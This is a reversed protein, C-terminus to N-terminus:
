LSTKFPSKYPLHPSVSTLTHALTYVPFKKAVLDVREKECVVCNTRQGVKISLIIGGEDGEDDQRCRYSRVLLFSRNRDLPLLALHSSLQLMRCGTYKVSYSRKIRRGRKRMQLLPLLLVDPSTKFLPYLPIHSCVSAFVVLTSSSEVINSAVLGM